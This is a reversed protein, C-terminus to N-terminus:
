VGRGEPHFEDGHMPKFNGYGEAKVLDIHKQLVPDDMTTKDAVGGAHSNCM